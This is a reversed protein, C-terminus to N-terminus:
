ISSLSNLIRDKVNHYYVVHAMTDRVQSIGAEMEDPACEMGLSRKVNYELWELRGYNSWYATEM